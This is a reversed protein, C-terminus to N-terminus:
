SEHASELVLNKLDQIVAKKDINKYSDPEAKQLELYDPKFPSLKSEDIDPKHANAQLRCDKLVKEQREKEQRIEKAATDIKKEIYKKHAMESEVVIVAPKLFIRKFLWYFFLFNIAQVFLTGNILM